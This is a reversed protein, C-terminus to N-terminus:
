VNRECLRPCVDNQRRAYLDDQSGVCLAGSVAWMFLEALVMDSQSM